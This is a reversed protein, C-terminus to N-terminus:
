RQQAAERAGATADRHDVRSAKQVRGAQAANEEVVEEQNTWSDGTDQPSGLLQGAAVGKWEGDHDIRGPEGATCGADLAGGLRPLVRHDNQGLNTLASQGDVDVKLSASGSM